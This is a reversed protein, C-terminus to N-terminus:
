AVDKRVIKPKAYAEGDLGRDEEVLPATLLEHLFWVLGIAGLIVFAWSAFQLFTLADIRSLIENM